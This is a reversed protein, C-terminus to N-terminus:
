FPVEDVDIDAKAQADRKDMAESIIDRKPDPKQERDKARIYNDPVAMKEMKSALPMIANVNAWVKGGDGAKHVVNLQCNVGILCELDFGDLEKDTFAVGRWAELDKRLQAKENLSLTYSSLVMFPVGNSDEKDIIWRLQVKHKEGWQTDRMGLDVVDVCVAQHAGAPTTEFDNGGGSAIIPM